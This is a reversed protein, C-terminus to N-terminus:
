DIPVGIQQTPGSAPPSISDPDLPDLQPCLIVQGSLDTHYVYQRGGATLWIRHGPVLGQAYVKGPTPCGLAADPWTMEEARDLRIEGAEIKLRGALDKVSLSVFKDVPPLNAPMETPEATGGLQLPNEPSAPGPTESPVAQRESRAPDSSQDVAAQPAGCSAAALSLLFIFSSWHIRM